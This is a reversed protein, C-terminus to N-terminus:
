KKKNGLAGYMRDMTDDYVHNPNKEPDYSTMTGNRSDFAISGGSGMSIFPKKEECSIVNIKKSNIEDINRKITEVMKKDPFSGPFVIFSLNYTENGSEIYKVLKQIHLSISPSGWKDDGRYLFSFMAESHSLFAFQKELDFALIGTCSALAWTALIPTEPTAIAWKGMDVEKVQSYDEISLSDDSNSDTFPYRETLLEDDISKLLEKLKEYDVRKLFEEVKEKEM